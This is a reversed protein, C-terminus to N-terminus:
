FSKLGQSQMYDMEKDSYPEELTEDGLGDDRAAANAPVIDWDDPVADGVQLSPVEKPAEVFIYLNGSKRALGGGQTGYVPFNYRDDAM